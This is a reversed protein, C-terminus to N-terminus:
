GVARPATSPAADEAAVRRQWELLVFRTWVEAWGVRPDDRRLADRLRVGDAPDLGVAEHAAGDGLSGDRWIVPALDAAQEHLV